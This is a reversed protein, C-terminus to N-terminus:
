YPHFPIVKTIFSYFLLLYNMNILSNLSYRVKVRTNDLNAVINGMTYTLRVIIEENGPYKDFLRVFIRYIDKYSAIADCCGENTSITSFIRSINSIIDLDTTFIDMTLCLEPIAQSTVFNEYIDEDSAVNRLAGTLQFLAHNTQEPIQLKEM